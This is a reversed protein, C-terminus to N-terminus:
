MAFYGLDKVKTQQLSYYYCPSLAFNNPPIDVLAVEPSQFPLPLM